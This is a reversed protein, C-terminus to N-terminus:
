APFPLRSRAVDSDQPHVTLRLGLIPTRLPRVHAGAQWGSHAGPKGEYDPPVVAAVPPFGRQGAWVDQDPPLVLPM